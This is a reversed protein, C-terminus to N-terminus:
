KSAVVVDTRQRTSAVDSCRQPWVFAEIADDDVRRSEEAEVKGKIRKTKALSKPPAM